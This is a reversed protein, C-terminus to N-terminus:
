ISPLSDQQIPEEKQPKPPNFAPPLKQPESVLRYYKWNNDTIFEGEIEYGERQLEWIRVHFQTIAPPKLFAMGSVWEGKAQRLADLIREKQTKEKIM